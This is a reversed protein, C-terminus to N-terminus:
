GSVRRMTLNATGVIVGGLRPFDQLYDLRPM